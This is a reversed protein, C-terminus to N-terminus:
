TQPGRKYSATGGPHGQPNEIGVLEGGTPSSYLAYLLENVVHYRVREATTGAPDPDATHCGLERLLGDRTAADLERYPADYWSRAADDLDAVADAVGAAYAERNEVRGASYTEVFTRHGEVASPYVVEAVAVLTKVEAEGIAAEGEGERLQDLTVAGGAVVGAAGLAALADRRSLEM